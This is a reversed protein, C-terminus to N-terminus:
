ASFVYCYVHATTSTALTKRGKDEVFPFIHVLLPHLPTRSTRATYPTQTLTSPLQCNKQGPKALQEKGSNGMQCLSTWDIQKKSPCWEWMLRSSMLTALSFIDLQKTKRWIACVNHLWLIHSHKAWHLFYPGSYEFLPSQLRPCLIYILPLTGLDRAAVKPHIVCVLTSCCHM